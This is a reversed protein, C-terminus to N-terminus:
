VHRPEAHVPPRVGDLMRRLDGDKRYIRWRKDVIEFEHGLSAITESPGLFLRGGRKLAFHFLSLIKLQAAPKPSQSPWPLLPQSASKDFSGAM